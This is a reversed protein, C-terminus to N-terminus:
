VFALDQEDQVPEAQVAAGLAASVYLSEITEEARGALTSQSSRGAYLDVRAGWLERPLPTGYTREGSRGDYSLMWPIDRENLDSLLAELREREFGQHYRKDAGETTGQWPPDMYALDQPGANRLCDEADGTFTMAKGALLASAGHIEHTMKGPNMGKRRHDASQSFGNKSFRPANKVCRALLYLLRAAEPEANFEARVRNFHDRSGETIQGEWLAEYRSALGTPDDLVQEWIAVLPRLSDGIVYRDATGRYCAAMTLASSGAFPEYLTAFRRREVVALIRDALRRKSGQYPIPHPLRAPVFMFTVTPAPPVRPRSLVAGRCLAIGPPEKARTQQSSPTPTAQPGENPGQSTDDLADATTAEMSPFAHGYLNM